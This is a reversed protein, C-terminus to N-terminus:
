WKEGEEARFARNSVSGADSLRLLALRAALASAAALVFWGVACAADDGADALRGLAAGAVPRGSPARLAAEPRELGSRVEGPGVTVTAEDSVAFRGTASTVVARYVRTGEASSDVELFFSSAGEVRDFGGQENKVFWQCTLLEDTGPTADEVTARVKLPATKEGRACVISAPQETIVPDVFSAAYLLPTRLRGSAGDGAKGAAPDSPVYDSPVFASSSDSSRLHNRLEDLLGKAKAWFQETVVKFAANALETREDAPTNRMLADVVEHQSVISAQLADLYGRVGDAAADRNNSALTNIDMMVYDLNRGPEERMAAEVSDVGPDGQHAGDVKDWPPYFGADVETLLASYVPLHVGFEARSLAQWQITAIDPSLGPRIQFMHSEVTRDNGIAYLAPNLNANLGETQEGRAALSRLVSFVDPAFGPVFLLRPDSVSTAAGDGDVAYDVGATLPSGFYARGQVYRTAKGPGPDARGYTSAIDPSGDDFTKLIGARQPLGVVDASHLCAAADDVDVRFRLNGMNPNVSAHADDMKLALWQRGSLQMFVWAEESDAVVIQNLGESGKEDVIRGLREVGDRASSATSLVVDALNYEGIGTKVLPDLAAMEDNCDTTLTASVSVGKENVGAESYAKAAVPDDQAGWASPLDRVYTYRYSAGRYTWEFGTDPRSDNEYSRFAPDVERDQVGFAKAHRPKYDEARGVYLEGAATLGKGVYVQTCALAGGPAASLLAALACGAVMRSFRRLAM